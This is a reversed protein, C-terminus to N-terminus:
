VHQLSTQRAESLSCSQGCVKLRSILKKGQSTNSCATVLWPVLDQLMERVYGLLAPLIPQVNGAVWNWHGGSLVVHTATDLHQLWVYRTKITIHLHKSESNGHYHTFADVQLLHFNSAKIIRYM